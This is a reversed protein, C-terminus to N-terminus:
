EDDVELWNMPFATIVRFGKGSGTHKIKVAVWFTPRIRISGVGFFRYDRKAERGTPEAFRKVMYAEDAQGSAVASVREPYDLLVQNTYINASNISDFTGVPISSYIEQRGDSFDKSEVRAILQANPIDVHRAIAHGGAAEELRLDVTSTLPRFAVTELLGGDGRPVAELPRSEGESGSGTWQGGGATGAPVRPQSPSYKREILDFQLAALDYRLRAFEAQLAELENLRM